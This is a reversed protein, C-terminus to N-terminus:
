QEANLMEKYFKDMLQYDMHKRRLYQLLDIYQFYFAKEQENETNNKCKILFANIYDYKSGDNAAGYVIINDLELKFDDKTWTSKDPRKEGDISYYLIRDVIYGNKENTKYYRPLQRKMDGANNIKNEVIICHKSTLDKILIDIKNEERVIKTNLYDNKNIKPMNSLANIYEIFYEITNRKNELIYKM